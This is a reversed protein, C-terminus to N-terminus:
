KGPVTADRPVKDVTPPWRFEDVSKDVSMAIGDISIGWSVECLTYVTNELGLVATDVKELAVVLGDVAPPRFDLAVVTEPYSLSTTHHATQSPRPTDGTTPM